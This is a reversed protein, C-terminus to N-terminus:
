WGASRLTEVMREPSLSGYHNQLTVLSVRLLRAVIVPDMGMELLSRAAFHRFRMPNIHVDVGEHETLEAGIKALMRNYAWRGQPKPKALFDRVWPLLEHHIPLEVRNNRKVKPRRWVLLDGQINSPGLGGIKSPHIGTRAWFRVLQAAFDPDPRASWGRGIHLTVRGAAECVAEFEDPSFPEFADPHRQRPTM